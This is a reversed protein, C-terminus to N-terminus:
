EAEVVAGGVCPVLLLCGSGVSEKSLLELLFRLLLCGTEDLLVLLELLVSRDLSSEHVDLDDEECEEEEEKGGAHVTGEGDETLLGDVLLLVLM